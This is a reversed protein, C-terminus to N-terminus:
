IYPLCNRHGSLRPHPPPRFAKTAPGSLFSSKKRSGRVIMSLQFAQYETSVNLLNFLIFHIETPRYLIGILLVLTGLELLHQLFVNGIGGTLLTDDDVFELSVELCAQPDSEINKLFSRDPYMKKKFSLDLDLKESPDYISGNKTLFPYRDHKIPNSRFIFGSRSKKELTSDSDPNEM